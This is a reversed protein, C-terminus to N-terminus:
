PADTEKEPALTLPCPDLCFKWFTGVPLARIPVKLLRLTQLPATHLHECASLDACLGPQEKLAELLGDTEEITVIGECYLIPPVAETDLRLPM